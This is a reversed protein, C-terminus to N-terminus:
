AVKEFLVDPPIALSCMVLLHFPPANDLSESSRFVGKPLDGM